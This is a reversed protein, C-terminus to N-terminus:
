SADLIANTTFLEGDIIPDLDRCSGIRCGRELPVDHCIHLCLVSDDIEVADV